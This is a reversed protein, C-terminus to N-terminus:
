VARQDTCDQGCRKLSLWMIDHKQMNAEWIASPTQTSYVGGTSISSFFLPFFNKCMMPLVVM